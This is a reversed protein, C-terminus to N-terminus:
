VCVHVVVCMSTSVCQLAAPSSVHGQRAQGVLFQQLRGYVRPRHFAAFQDSADVGVFRLHHAPPGAARVLSPAPAGVFLLHNLYAWSVLFPGWSNLHRYQYLGKPAKPAQTRKAEGRSGVALHTFSGLPRVVPRRPPTRTSVNIERSIGLRLLGLAGPRQLVWLSEQDWVKLLSPLFM